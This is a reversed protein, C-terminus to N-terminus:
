TILLYVLLAELPFLLLATVLGPNTKKTYLSWLSHGVSNLIEGIVWLWIIIQWGNRQPEIFAFFGILGLSLLLTSFSLFLTKSFRPHRHNIKQTLPCRGMFDDKFEEASHIAQLFILSPYAIPLLNNVRKTYVIQKNPRYVM